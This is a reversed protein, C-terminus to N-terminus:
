RVRREKGHELKSQRGNRLRKVWIADQEKAAAQKQKLEESCRMVKHRVHQMRLMKKEARCGDAEETLSQLELM